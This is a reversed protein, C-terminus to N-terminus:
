LSYKGGDVCTARAAVTRRAVGGPQRRAPSPRVRAPPPPRRAPRAADVSVRCLEGMHCDSGQSIGHDGPTDPGSYRECKTQLEGTTKIGKTRQEQGMEPNKQNFTFSRAGTVAFGTETSVTGTLSLILQPGCVLMECARQWVPIWNSQPPVKRNELFSNHLRYQFITGNQEVRIKPILEARRWCLSSLTRRV